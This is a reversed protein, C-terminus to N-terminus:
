VEYCELQRGSEVGEQEYDDWGVVQRDSCPM